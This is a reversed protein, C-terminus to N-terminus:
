YRSRARPRAARRTFHRWSAGQRASLMAVRGTTVEFVVVGVLSTEVLVKLDTRARRADRCARTTAIASAAQAGFPVLIEEDADTFARSNEKAVLRFHGVHAGQHRM